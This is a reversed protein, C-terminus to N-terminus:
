RILNQEQLFDKSLATCVGAESLRSILLNKLENTFIFNSNNQGTFM